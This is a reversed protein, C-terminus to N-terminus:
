PAQLPPLLASAGEGLGYHGVVGEGVDEVALVTAMWGQVHDLDDVTSVVSRLREDDRVAAVVESVETTEGLASAVITTTPEEVETTIRGLLPQVVVDDPLSDSGGVVVLRVGAPLQPAEPGEGVPQFTVFGADILAQVDGLQDAVDQATPEVQGPTDAEPTTAGDAPQGGTAGDPAPQGTAPDTAAPDETAPDSTADELPVEPEAEQQERLQDGLTAVAVRRLRAPDDSREGLAAALDTVDGGDDLLFRESLWWVGQVDAGAVQLAATTGDIDAQDVGESAVVLVPVPDLRDALLGAAQEDLAEQLAVGRDVQDRLEGIEQEREELRTELNELQGNLNDVTARDLFTSGLTLGIGMALFVATLSVIHYRLNIM